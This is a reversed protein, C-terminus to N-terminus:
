PTLLGIIRSLDDSPSQLAERRALDLPTEGNNDAATPDAGNALLLGVADVSEFDVAFHLPTRGETLTRANIDAGRELLLSLARHAPRTAVHIPRLGDSDSADVSAGADLLAVAIGYADEDFFETPEDVVELLSTGTGWPEDPDVGDALLARVRPLDSTFVAYGLSETDSM